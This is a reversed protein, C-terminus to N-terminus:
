PTPILYYDDNQYLLLLFFDRSTLLDGPNASMYNEFYMPGKEISSQNHNLILANALLNTIHFAKTNPRDENTVLQIPPNSISFHNSNSYVWPNTDILFM